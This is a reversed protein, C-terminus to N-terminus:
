NYFDVANNFRCRLFGPVPRTIVRTCASVASRAPMRGAAASDGTPAAPSLCGSCCTVKGLVTTYRWCICPCWPCPWRTHHVTHHIDGACRTIHTALIVM